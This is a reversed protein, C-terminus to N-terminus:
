RLLFSISFTFLKLSLFLFVWLLCNTFIHLSTVRHSMSSQIIKINKIYIVNDQINGFKCTDALKKLRVVYQTISESDKQEEKRFVHRQYTVNTCPKFHANLKNVAEDFRTGTDTLTDFVEQVEPGAIHLLLSRKQSDDSIGAAAAYINFRSLWTTWKQSLASVSEGAITFNNPPPVSLAKAM